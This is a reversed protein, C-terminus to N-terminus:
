GFADCKPTQPSFSISRHRFPVRRTLNIRALFSSPVATFDDFVLDITRTGFANREAVTVYRLAVYRVEPEGFSCPITVFRKRQDDDLPDDGPPHILLSKSRSCTATLLSSFIRFSLSLLFSPHTPSPLPFGKGNGM